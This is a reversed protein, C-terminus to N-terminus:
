QKTARAVVRQWVFAYDEAEIADKNNETDNVSNTEINTNINNGLLQVQFAHVAEPPATAFEHRVQTEQVPTCGAKVMWDNLTIAIDGVPDSLEQVTLGAEELAQRWEHPSLNRAHSPDRLAEVHNQWDAAIPDNDPVCTDALLFRGGPILVRKVEALFQPISLFHHPAVRTTVLSFSANPFPMAEAAGEIWTVNTLAQAEQKQRAEALMGPSVDLGVVSRVHPAFALATFGTGTAVDLVTDEPRHDANELLWHLTKETWTNWQANYHAAQRDFQERSTRVPTEPITM